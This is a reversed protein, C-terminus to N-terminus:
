KVVGSFDVTGSFNVTQENYFGVTVVNFTAKFITESMQTITITGSQSKYFENDEDGHVVLEIFGPDDPSCGYTGPVLLGSVGGAAYTNVSITMSYVSAGSERCGFYILDGSEYNFHLLEDFCLNQTVNGSASAGVIGNCTNPDPTDPDDKECKTSMLTMLGLAITLLLILKKIKM